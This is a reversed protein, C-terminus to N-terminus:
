AFGFEKQLVGPTPYGQKVRGSSGGVEERLRRTRQAEANDKSEKKREGSTMANRGNVFARLELAKQRKSVTETVWPPPPPHPV